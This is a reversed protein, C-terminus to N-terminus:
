GTQDEGSRVLFWIRVSLVVANEGGRFDLRQFQTLNVKGDEGGAFGAESPGGTAFSDDAQLAGELEGTGASRDGTEPFDIIGCGLGQHDLKVAVEELALEAFEFGEALGLKPEEVVGFRDCTAVQGSATCFSFRFDGGVGLGSEVSWSAAQRCVPSCELQRAIWSLQM